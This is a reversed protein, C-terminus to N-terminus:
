SPKSRKISTLAAFSEPYMIRGPRHLGAIPFEDGIGFSARLNSSVLRTKLRRDFRMLPICNAPASSVSAKIM